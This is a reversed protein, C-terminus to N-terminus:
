HEIHWTLFYIDTLVRPPSTCLKSSREAVEWTMSQRSRKRSLTHIPQAEMLYREKSHATGTNFTRVIIGPIFMSHTAQGTALSGLLPMM